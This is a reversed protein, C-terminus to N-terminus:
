SFFNGNFIMGLELLVAQNLFIERAKLVISRIDSEKLEIKDIKPQKRVELLQEIVADINTNDDTAM